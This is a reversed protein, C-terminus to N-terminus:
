PQSSMVAMEHLLEAVEEAVEECYQASVCGSATRGALHQVRLRLDSYEAASLNQNM